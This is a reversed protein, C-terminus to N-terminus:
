VASGQQFVPMSNSYTFEAIYHWFISVQAFQPLVVGSVLSNVFESQIKMYLCATDKMAATLLLLEFSSELHHITLNLLYQEM